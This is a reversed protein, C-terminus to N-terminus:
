APAERYFGTARFLIVLAIVVTLTQILALAATLETSSNNWASVISPAIVKANPGMLFISVGLERVSAMFILLWAAIIGPKLLPMTVTRLQYGWSAGCVRACEELSKDIQLVVGALTRVGLPLMVTFYALGILWLTGYLPIPINLWAWLLALGFVLRPVAQPFMAVYEIAGRGPVQSRYIIWVLLAMVVVGVTAVAVGLGLSNVIAQRVAGLAFATAYNALTFQSDALLVTAFRQFSTLVLVALPLGVAVLGYLLCVGLLLWALRGMDMPRPRFAKGTITAYSGRTVIMRYVLLSALMVVFLSIGMAAARGYDPPFSLTATWIATTIVYIRGPIGLVLAAAFSGLMEAFVFITAGLVGPAVLPLTVRLMTRLKSAGLVRSSEELAPDMSKMAASIMVFAVTGEFLAMVWAIGFVSYANVLDGAGGLFRWLQNVFGSRPGAIIGWALAGVLPTMYYPLEMLRELPARWPIEARSLIWALTFGFVIAMATAMLAIEATDLLVHWDELMAGFNDLGLEAAPFNEPDGVNVSEAVLFCVPYLVLGGVGILVAATVVSQPRWLRALRTLVAPV